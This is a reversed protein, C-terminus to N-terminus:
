SNLESFFEGGAMTELWNLEVAPLQLLAAAEVAKVALDLKELGLGARKGRPGLQAFDLDSDAVVLLLQLSLVLLLHCCVLGLPLVAM